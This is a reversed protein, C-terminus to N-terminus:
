RGQRGNSGHRADPRRPLNMINEMIKELTASVHGGEKLGSVTKAIVHANKMARSTEFGLDSAHRSLAEMFPPGFECELTTTMDDEFCAFDTEVLTRPETYDHNFLSSLLKNSEEGREAKKKGKDCDWMAYTPIALSQFILAPRDISAKGACPIVSIDMSDARSGIASLYGTIVARDSEGEVLVVARSFFGESMWPTMIAQLRAALATTTFSKGPLKGSAVVKEELVKALDALRTEHVVTHRAGSGGRAAKKLLRLQDIRDIGVFHPSHTAYIIQTRGAAGEENGGEGALRLLAEAMHRQRNPHQYLEPEEICLVLGPAPQANAGGPAPHGRASALYSLMTMIFARQLGHGAGRVDTKYSDEVLKAAARPLELRVDPMSEMELEIQGDSVYTHLTKTLEGGLESLQDAVQERDMVAQVRSSVDKKIDELGASDFNARVAMEVIKGLASGRSEKEDASADHVAEVLLFRTYRGLHGSGVEKFGFFKGEDRVRDCQDPHDIEWKELHARRDDYKTYAPFDRYEDKQIIKKYEVNADVAKTQRWFDMFDKRRLRSGHYPADMRGDKLSVVREVVLSGGQMYPRFTGRAPGSLDTFTATLTIPDSADRGHYDQESVSPAPDYFLSLAKLFSSKGVGNAGILATLDDLYLTADLISRYNQVRLSRLRM